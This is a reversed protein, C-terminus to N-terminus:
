EQGQLKVKLYRLKVNAIVKTLSMGPMDGALKIRDNMWVEITSIVVYM